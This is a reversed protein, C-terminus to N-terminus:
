QPKVFAFLHYEMLGRAFVPGQLLAGRMNALEWPSGLRLWRWVSTLRAIRALRRSSPLVHATINRHVAVTFGADAAWQRLQSPRALDPVAWCAAWAQFLREEAPTYPDEKRFGDAIVLRGGPKLVRYAEHLARPGDAYCFSELFWQREYTADPVPLAHYDGLRVHVSATLGQADIRAQAHRVQDPVLTWGEVRVGTRTAARAATGGIGCGADCCWQGPQGDAADIVIDAMRQLAEAHTRTTADHYGYHLHQASWVWRYHRASETYYDVLAM